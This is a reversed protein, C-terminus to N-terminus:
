KSGIRLRIQWTVSSNGAVTGCWERRVADTLADAGANTPEIAFHHHGHWGGRTLWLGLGNNESVDWDFDFREGTKYNHVGSMGETIPGAVLKACGDKPTGSDVADVWTEGNLLNRTSAPMILKDGDQLKLLPHMAWLFYESARSHNTLQYDLRIEDGNLEITREFNFPSIELRISTKLAGRQRADEDVTWAAGWVEGHDPLHRGRFVCPAITPLCEDVGVLPSRCFDDGPRNHFLILGDPPHWMWERGTRRNKISIIKAGLEPVVAVEVKDNSLTYIDFGQEQRVGLTNVLVKM